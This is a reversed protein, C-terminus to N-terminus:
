SIRFFRHLLVKLMNIFLVKQINFIKRLTLESNIETLVIYNLYFKTSRAQYKKFYQLEHQISLYDQISAFQVYNPDSPLKFYIKDSNINLYSLIKRSFAFIHQKKNHENTIISLESNSYKSNQEQENILYNLFKIGFENFQNGSWRDEHKIHYAFPTILQKIRFGKISPVLPVWYDWWPVGLCFDSKMYLKIIENCFIFYDFGHFFEEGELSDLSTIDIRSGYVLGYQAEKLIYQVMEDDAYLYIDSNIVGCIQSNSAELSQLIDDFYILPKGVIESANRKAEIFTVNKFYESLVQIEAKSNVSIVEFGINIWSAIAGQQQEINRPAISTAVTVKM